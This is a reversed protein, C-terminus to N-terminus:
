CKGTSELCAARGQGHRGESQEGFVMLSHAPLVHSGFGSTQRFRMLAPFAVGM